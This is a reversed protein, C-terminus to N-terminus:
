FIHIGLALSYELNMCPFSERGEIIYCPHYIHHCKKDLQHEYGNDQYADHIDHYHGNIFPYPLYPSNGSNAREGPLISEMNTISPKQRPMAPARIPLITPTEIIRTTLRNFIVKLKPCCVPSSRTAFIVGESRRNMDTVTIITETM